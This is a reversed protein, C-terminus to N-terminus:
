STRRPPCSRRPRCRRRGQPILRYARTRRTFCFRIPPAAYVRKGQKCGHLAEREFFREADKEGQEHRPAKKRASRLFRLLGRFVVGSRLLREDGRVRLLGGRSVLSIREFVDRECPFFRLGDVLGLSGAISPPVVAHPASRVLLFAALRDYHDRAIEHTLGALLLRAFGILAIGEASAKGAHFGYEVLRIKNRAIEFRGKGFAGGIHRLLVLHLAIRMQVRRGRKQLRHPVRAEIYEHHAIVVVAIRAHPANVIRYVPDLLVAEDM